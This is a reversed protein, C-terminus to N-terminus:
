QRNRTSLPLFAAAVSAVVFLGAWALWARTGAALGITVLPPGVVTAAAFGLNYTALYVPRRDAPTHVLALGMSGASIYLEAVTMVVVVLVCAALASWQGEVVSLPALAAAVAALLGGAVMMLRARRPRESGKSMHIQLAVVMVTNIFTVFGAAWPPADTNQVIWLPMGVGLLIASLMLLGYVVTVALFPINRGVGGGQVPRKIDGTRPLGRSLVASISFMLGCLLMAARLAWQDTLAVAAAAPFSGAAMGANRILRLRALAAVARAPDADHVSVAQILPGTGRSLLGAVTVAAIASATNWAMALAAYSLARAVFYLILSRRLGMRQALAALPLAGAISAVGSLGLAFGIQYNPLGIALNLYVASFALYMGLGISDALGVAYLRRPFAPAAAITDGAQASTM